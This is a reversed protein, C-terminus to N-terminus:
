CRGSWKWRTSGVAMSQRTTGSSGSWLGGRRRPRLPPMSRRGTHTNLQDLVLRIREAEPFWEDVLVRIAEAFDVARRQGTVRLHREGRHPAYCGFLNCTGRRVYEDDDRVPVGPRRPLPPRSADVLQYPLEDFCVVPHLPDPPAAYLALVDEM